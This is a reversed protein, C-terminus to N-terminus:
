QPVRATALGESPFAMLDLASQWGFQQAFADADDNQLATLLEVGSCMCESAIFDIDAEM